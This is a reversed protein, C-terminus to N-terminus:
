LPLGSIDEKNNPRLSNDRMWKEIQSKDFRLFRGIKIFPIKRRSTLAYIYHKKVRLIDCIEEITLYREM